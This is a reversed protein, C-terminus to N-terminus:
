RFHRRGKELAEQCEVCRLRGLNLRFQSLEADCDVCDPSPWSGDQRRTQQPAAARQVEVLAAEELKRTLDAARDLDDAGDSM